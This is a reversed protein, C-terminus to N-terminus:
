PVRAEVLDLGDGDSITHIPELNFFKKYYNRINKINIYLDRTYAKNNKQLNKNILNYSNFGVASDIYDTGYEQSKSFKLGNDLVTAKKFKPDVRLPTEDLDVRLDFPGM